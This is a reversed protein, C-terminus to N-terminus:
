IGDRKLAQPAQKPDGPPVGETQSKKRDLAQREFQWSIPAPIM